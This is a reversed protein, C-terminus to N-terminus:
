SAESAQRGNSWFGITEVLETKNIPKSLYDDMGVELFMERDGKLAHATVGIIPVKAPEGKLRRIQKTAEVGDMVPMQVDMIVLDYPIDRLAKLAEQGDAVVDTRYGCGNLIALMLRQNILNDEVVLIRRSTATEASEFAKPAPATGPLAPSDGFLDGLCQLM